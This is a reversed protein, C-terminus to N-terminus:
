GLWFWKSKKKNKQLCLKLSLLKYVVSGICSVALHQPVCELHFLAKFMNTSIIKVYRNRLLNHRKTIKELVIPVIDAFYAIIFLHCATPYVPTYSSAM